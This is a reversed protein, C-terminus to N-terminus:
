PSGPPQLRPRPFCKLAQDVHDPRLHLMLGLVRGPPGGFALRAARLPGVPTRPAGLAPDCLAAHLM